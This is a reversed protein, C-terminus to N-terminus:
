SIAVLEKVEEICKDWVTDADSAAAACAAAYAARAAARAAYSAAYAVYVNKFQQCWEAIHRARKVEVSISKKSNILLPILQKLKQRQSASMGDNLQRMFSSIVPCACKPRDTWEEGAIFAVAEMVCFTHDPQHSGHELIISNLDLERM